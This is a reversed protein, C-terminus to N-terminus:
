WWKKDDYTLVPRNKDEYLSYEGDAITKKMTPTVNHRNCNKHWRTLRFFVRSGVIDKLDTPFPPINYTKKVIYVLPM